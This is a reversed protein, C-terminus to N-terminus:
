KEWVDLESIMSEFRECFLTMHEETKGRSFLIDKVVRTDNDGLGLM